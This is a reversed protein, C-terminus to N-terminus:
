PGDSVALVVVNLTLASCRLTSPIPLDIQADVQLHDALVARVQCRPGLVDALDHDATV